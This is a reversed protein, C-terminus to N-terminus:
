SPHVWRDIPFAELKDLSFILICDAIKPGIGSIEMLKAKAQLKQLAHQQQEDMFLDAQAEAELNKAWAEQKKRKLEAEAELRKVETLAEAEQKLLAADLAANQEIRAQQQVFQAESELEELAEQSPSPSLEHLVYGMMM